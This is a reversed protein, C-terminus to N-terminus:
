ESIVSLPGWRVAAEVADHGGSLRGARRAVASLAQRVRAAWRGVAERAGRDSSAVGRQGLADGCSCRRGGHKGTALWAASARDAATERQEGSARRRRAAGSDGRWHAVTEGGDGMRRHRAAASGRAAPCHRRVSAGHAAHQAPWDLQAALAACAPWAGRPRPGCRASHM